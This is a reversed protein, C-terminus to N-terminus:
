EDLRLRRLIEALTAFTIPSLQVHRTDVETGFAQVRETVTEVREFDGRCGCTCGTVLGRRILSAMKARMVKAPINPFAKELDWTHTWLNERAKKEDIVALVATDDIDKAQFGCGCRRRMEPNSRCDAHTLTQKNV